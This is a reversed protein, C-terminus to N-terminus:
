IDTSYYNIVKLILHIYYHLNICYLNISVSYHFTPNGISYIAFSKLLFVKATKTSKVEDAFTKRRIKVIKTEYLTHRFAEMDPSKYICVWQLAIRGTDKKKCVNYRKVWQLHLGTKTSM